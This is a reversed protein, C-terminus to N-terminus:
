NDSFMLYRHNDSHNIIGCGTTALPLSVSKHTMPILMGDPLLACVGLHNLVCVVCTGTGEMGLFQADVFAGTGPVVRFRSVRRIAMDKMADGALYFLGNSTGVYVGTDVSLVMAPDDGPVPVWGRTMDFRNYFFPESFMLYTQRQQAM